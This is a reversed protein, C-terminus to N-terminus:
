DVHKGFFQMTKDWSESSRDFNPSSEDFTLFGHPLGAYIFFEHEKGAAALGSQYKEVNDMGVGHDQDGWFGLLPTSVEHAEQLPEYPRYESPTPNAPFGYYIVGAALRPERSALLMVLTGGM